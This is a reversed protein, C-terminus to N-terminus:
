SFDNPWERKQHAHYFSICRSIASSESGGERKVIETLQRRRDVDLYASRAKLPESTKPRGRKRKTTM